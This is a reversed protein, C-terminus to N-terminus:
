KGSRAREYLDTQVSEFSMNYVGLFSSVLSCMHAYGPETKDNALLAIVTEKPNTDLKLGKGSSPHEYSVVASQVAKLAHGPGPMKALASFVAPAKYNPEKGTIANHIRIGMDYIHVKKGGQAGSFQLTYHPMKDMQSDSIVRFFTLHNDSVTREADGEVYEDIMFYPTKPEERAWILRFSHLGHSLKYFDRPLAQAFRTTIFEVSITPTPKLGFCEALKASKKSITDLLTIYVPSVEEKSESYQPSKAILDKAM